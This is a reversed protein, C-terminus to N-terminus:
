CKCSIFMGLRLAGYSKQKAWFYFYLWKSNQVFILALIESLTECHIDDSGYSASRTKNGIANVM